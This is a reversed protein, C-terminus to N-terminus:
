DQVNRIFSGTDGSSGGGEDKANAVFLSSGKEDESRGPSLAVKRECFDYSVM